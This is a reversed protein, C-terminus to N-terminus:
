YTKRILTILQDKEQPTVQELLGNLCILHAEFAKAVLKRGEPTLQILKVRKDAASRDSVVLGKKELNKIVVTINGGTTLIKEVIEGVCLAGKHYLAELVAFQSLSLDYDAVVASLERNINLYGRSLRIWLRLNRDSEEGYSQKEMM